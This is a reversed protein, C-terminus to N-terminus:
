KAGRVPSGKARKKVGQALFQKRQEPDAMAEEWEQQRRKREKKKRQKRFYNRKDRRTKSM